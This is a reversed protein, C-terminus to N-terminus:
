NFSHENEKITPWVKVSYFSSSFHQEAATQTYSGFINCKLFGSPLLINFELAVDYFLFVGQQKHKFTQYWVLLYKRPTKINPFVKNEKQVPKLSIIYTTLQIHHVKTFYKWPLSINYNKSWQSTLKCIVTLYLISFM